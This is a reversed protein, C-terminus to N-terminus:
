YEVMQFIESDTSFHSSKRSLMIKKRRADKKSVIVEGAPFKSLLEDILEKYGKFKRGKDDTYGNYYENFTKMLVIGGTEKNGFLALCKNTAEELKRFCIINGFAKVSNLIRNTRSFAQLLGQM